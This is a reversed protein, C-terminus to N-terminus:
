PTITQAEDAIRAAVGPLALERALTLGRGVIEARDGVPVGTALWDGITRLEWGPAGWAAALQQARAFHALAAQPRGEAVEVAGMGAHPLPSKSNVDDARAFFGAAAQTDGIALAARGAGILASFDRPSSGLTRVYRALAATASEAYPSYSTQAAAPASAALAAGSCALLVAAFRV